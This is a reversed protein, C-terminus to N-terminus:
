KHLRLFAQEQEGDPGPADSSATAQVTPFEGGGGGYPDSTDADAAPEATLTPSAPQPSAAGWPDVRDVARPHAM